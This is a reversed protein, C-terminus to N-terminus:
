RRSAIKLPSARGALDHDVVAGPLVVLVAGLVVLGAVGALLVAAGRHRTLRDLWAQRGNGPEGTGM